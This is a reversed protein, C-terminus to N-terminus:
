EECVTLRSVTTGTHPQRPNLRSPLSSDGLRGVRAARPLGGAPRYLASPSSILPLCGQDSSSSLRSRLRASDPKLMVSIASCICRPLDETRLRANFNFMASARSGFGIVFGSCDEVIRDLEPQLRLVFWMEIADM